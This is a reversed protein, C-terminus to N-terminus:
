GVVVAAMMGRSGPLSPSMAGRRPRSPRRVEDMRNPRPLWNKEGTLPPSCSPPKHRDPAHFVPPSPAPEFTLRAAHDAHHPNTKRSLHTGTRGQYDTVATGIRGVMGGRREDSRYVRGAGPTEGHTAGPQRKTEGGAAGGGARVEHPEFVPGGRGDEV